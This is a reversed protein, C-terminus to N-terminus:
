ADRRTTVGFFTYGNWHTGTIAKAVATLSKYKRGQFAFGDSLTEVEYRQGRWERIFRSGVIPHGKRLKPRGVRGKPMGNEDYGHMTLAQDLKEQTRQPLGGYALEQIRYAIRKILFDRNYAPSMKGHLTAYLERLEEHKLKSLGTIKKLITDTM